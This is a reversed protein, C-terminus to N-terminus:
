VWSALRLSVHLSLKHNLENKAGHSPMVEEWLLLWLYKRNLPHQHM